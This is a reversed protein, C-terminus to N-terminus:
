EAQAFNLEVGNGCPDNFFIRVRGMLPVYERTFAVNADTLHRAM